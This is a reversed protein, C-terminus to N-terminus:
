SLAEKNSSHEVDEWRRPESLPNGVLLLFNVSSLPVPVGDFGLLLGAPLLRGQFGVAPGWASYQYLLPAFSV